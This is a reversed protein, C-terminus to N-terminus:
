KGQIRQDIVFWITFMGAPYMLIACILSYLGCGMNKWEYIVAATIAIALIAFIIALIKRTRKM